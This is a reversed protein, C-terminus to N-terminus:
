RPETFGPPLNSESSTYYTDMAHNFWSHEGDKECQRRGYGDCHSPLKDVYKVDIKKSRSHPMTLLESQMRNLWRRWSELETKPQPKVVDIAKM